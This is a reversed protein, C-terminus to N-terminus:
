EKDGYKDIYDQMTNASTRVLSTYTYTDDLYSFTSLTIKNPETKTIEYQMYYRGGKVVGWGDLILKVREGYTKRSEVM